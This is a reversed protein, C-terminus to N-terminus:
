FAPLSGNTNKKQYTLVQYLLALDVFLQFTGCAIFPMPNGRAIFTVTKFTDGLFFTGLLVLSFGETNQKKYNQILQPLGLTAEIMLAAYGLMEVYLPSLPILIGSLVGVVFALAGVFAIYSAMDSWNWFNDVNLGKSLPKAAKQSSSPYRCCVHLMIFQAFIMVLSQYLLVLDFKAGFWYFVRLVNSVMLILSIVKSFAESSRNKMIVRYQDIYGIVPGFVMAVDVALSSTTAVLEM